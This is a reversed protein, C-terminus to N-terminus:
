RPQDDPRQWEPPEGLLLSVALEIARDIRKARGHICQDVVFGDFAKFVLHAFVNDNLLAHREPPLSQAIMTTVRSEIYHLLDRSYKDGPKALILGQIFNLAFAGDAAPIEDWLARFIRTLRRRPDDISQLEIELEDIKLLLWPRFIEQLIGLKGSFYVYINSTSTGADKAIESLNTGAYGQAAFKRFASALIAQRVEEKKVQVM